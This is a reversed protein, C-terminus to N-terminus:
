EEEESATPASYEETGGTDDSEPSTDAAVAVPEPVAEREPMREVREGRDSSRDPEPEYPAHGGRHEIRHVAMHRMVGDTIKLIRSIEDLSAPESDFNLLHYSGEDKKLIEFALKRRGWVDHGVWTGGDGEVRERVRTVIEAAREEALEPDLILLIEYQTKM